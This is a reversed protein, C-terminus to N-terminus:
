KEDDPNEGRYKDHKTAYYADGKEAFLTLVDSAADFRSDRLAELVPKMRAKIRLTENLRDQCKKEEDLRGFEAHRMVDIELERQRDVINEMARNFITELDKHSITATHENM